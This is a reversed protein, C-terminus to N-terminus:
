GKRWGAPPGTEDASRGGDGGALRGAAKGFGRFLAPIVAFNGKAIERALYVTSLGAVCWPITLWHYWRAYRRFYVLNYEIKLMVRGPTIVGGSSTSVRHWLVAAPVYRIRFGARLARACMDSDETYFPTFVLDFPGIRDVVKRAVLFSCGVVYATDEPTNYQGADPERIGRHTVMGTWYNVNGGAYWLLDPKAHYLIKAGLIGIRDDEAAAKMLESLLEPHVRIDNDLHHVWEAGRGFAYTMAANRAGAVGLNSGNEIIEVHPFRDRVFAVSGDTSGNDSVALRFNPYTMASLTELTEGLVASGNYNLVVCYVLPAPASM